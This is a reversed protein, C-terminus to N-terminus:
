QQMACELLAGIESLCPIEAASRTDPEPPVVCDVPENLQCKYLAQERDQCGPPRGGCRAECRRAPDGCELAERLCVDICAGRVPSICTNLAVREDVCIPRPRSEGEVCQFASDPAARYCEILGLWLEECLPWRRALGREECQSVCGEPYDEECGARQTVWCFDDCATPAIPYPADCHSPALGGVLVCMRALGRRMGRTARQATGEATAEAVACLIAHAAHV